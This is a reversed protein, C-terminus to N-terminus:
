VVGLLSVYDDIPITAECMDEIALYGMLAFHISKFMDELYTTASQVAGACKGVLVWLRIAM